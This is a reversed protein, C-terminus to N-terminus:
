ALSQLHAAKAGLDPKASADAAVAPEGIYLAMEYSIGGAKGLENFISRANWMQFFFQPSASLGELGHKGDPRHAYQETRLTAEMHAQLSHFDKTVVCVDHELCQAVWQDGKRFVIIRLHLPRDMRTELRAEFAHNWFTASKKFLIM